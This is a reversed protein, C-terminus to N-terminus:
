RECRNEKKYMGRKERLCVDKKRKECERKKAWENYFLSTKNMKDKAKIEKTLQSCAQLMVDAQLESSEQGM